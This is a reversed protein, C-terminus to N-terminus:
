SDSFALIGPIIGRPKLFLRFTRIRHNHACGAGPDRRGMVTMKRRKAKRGVGWRPLTFTFLFEGLEGIRM